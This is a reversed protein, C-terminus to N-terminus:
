MLEIKKERGVNEGLQVFWGWKVDIRRGISDVDLFGCNDQL